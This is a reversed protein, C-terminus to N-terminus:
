RKNWNGLGALHLSLMLIKYSLMDMNKVKPDFPHSLGYVYSNYLNLLGLEVDRSNMRELMDEKYEIELANELGNLVNEISLPAPFLDNQPKLTLQRQENWELFTHAVQLRLEDM